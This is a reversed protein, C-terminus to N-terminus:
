IKWLNLYNDVMRKWTKDKVWRYAKDTIEKEKEPHHMFYLVNEAVDKPSNSVVIYPAFPTMKLYDEKVPNDYVAFVLRNVAMAELISLYRSVFAFRHSRLYPIPDNIFGNIKFNKEIQKKFKGDGIISFKFNPFDKKIIQVAELYTLIGTQEDLRGIFVASDNKKNIEAGLKSDQIIKDDVAGYSIIDPKTGYWKKIFDGICINGSSLAESIKRIIVARISIPYSEYGHFTTFVKKNPFFIKIPLYWIFVDHCHIINFQNFLKINKLFTFWIRFKKFWNRKGFEFSLVNLNKSIKYTFHTSKDIEKSKKAENDSNTITQYTQNKNFRYDLSGETLVFIEHKKKLLERSIKYVHKEVGGIRPFFSPTIFLIKM